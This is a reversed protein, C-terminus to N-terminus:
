RIAKGWRDRKPANAPVLQLGFVLRDRPVELGGLENGNPDHWIRGDGNACVAHNVEGAALCAIWKVRGVPPCAGRPIEELRVGCQRALEDNYAGRWDDGHTRFLSTPDPV